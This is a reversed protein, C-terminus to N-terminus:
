RDPDPAPFMQLLARVAGEGSLGDFCSLDRGNDLNLYGLRWRAFRRPGELPGHHLVQMREHRGDKMLRTALAAVEAASGELYQCLKAGDFVLMGTIGRERNLPRAQAVVTSVTEYARPGAIESVYFFQVLESM